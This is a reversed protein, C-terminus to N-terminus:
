IRNYAYWGIEVPIAFFPPDHLPLKPESYELRVIVSSAIIADSGNFRTLIRDVLTMGADAGQDEPTFVTVFFQGSLRQEPTPGATVPRRLIPVFEVRLFAQGEQRTFPVNPWAIPPLPAEDTAVPTTNLHNELAVRTANFVSM